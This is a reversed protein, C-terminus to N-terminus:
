GADRALAFLLVGKDKLAKVVAESAEQKNLYQPPGCCTTDCYCYDQELGVDDLANWVLEIIEGELM